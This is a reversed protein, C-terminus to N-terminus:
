LQLLKGEMSRSFFMAVLLEFWVHKVDYRVFQKSRFAPFKEKHNTFNRWFMFSYRWVFGACRSFSTNEKNREHEHNLSLKFMFDDLWTCYSKLLSDIQVFKKRICWLRVVNENERSPPDQRLAAYFIM